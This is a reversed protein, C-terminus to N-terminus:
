EWGFPQKLNTNLVTQTLPIPRYYDRPSRFLRASTEVNTLYGKTGESLTFSTVRDGREEKPLDDDFYYWKSIGYKKKDTWDEPIDSKKQYIAYDDVGDGSNDFKGFGPLYMGQQAETDLFREGVAWRYIDQLRFGECALEVRRERRVALITADNVKPYQNRLTQDVERNADFDPMGVRRRLLNISKAAETAGFQGLEAKAEAYNLLIEAYRYIPRGEYRWTYKDSQNAAYKEQCYGGKIPDNEYKVFSPSRSSSGPHAFNEALRPDRNAFGEFYPLTAYGSV